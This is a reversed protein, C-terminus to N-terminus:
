AVLRLYPPTPASPPTPLKPHIYFDPPSLTSRNIEIVEKVIVPSFVLVNCPKLIDIGIKRLRARHVKVQTMCSDFTDGNLWNIAYLATTNASKKSTCIGQEILTHTITRLDMATVQLKKDINLFEHHYKTLETLTHSLGYFQLQKKNLFTSKFKQEHRTVGHQKCYDTLRSVYSFEPSSEGFKKKVKPLLHLQFEVAKNYVSPYIERSNGLMSKWDVTNGDAYLNGRSRRYPMMSLAKLYAQVCGGGGVQMNTTLDIRTIVAGDVLPELSIAGSAKVSQTFGLYTCKTLLPLGLSALLHNYVSFCDDLSTYGFLNDIRGYRSPNGEVVLRSGKVHVTITTSYSGDVRVRSQRLPGYVGELFDFHAYGDDSIVPLEYDFDQYCSLWDIFM